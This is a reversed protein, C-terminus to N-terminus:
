ITYITYQTKGEVITFIYKDGDVIVEIPHLCKEFKKLISMVRQDNIEDETVEYGRKVQKSTISNYNYTGACGCMCTNPKGSYASEIDKLELKPMENVFLDLQLNKM